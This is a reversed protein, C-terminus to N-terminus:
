SVTIDYLCAASEIGSAAGTPTFRGLGMRLSYFIRTQDRGPIRDTEIRVRRRWGVTYARRNFCLVQGKTNSGGTTSLKGDAETKGMAISSIFPHGQLTSGVEGTFVFANPGYKDLTRFDDLAAVKNATWPDAIYVLDRPDTPSGWDMLYTSDIMLPKLAHLMDLTVAGSADTKNNTNDVIAAHRLGDFALYHKTDAPDADDLNINGSASNTTDGNLVASDSYHALSAQAQARLYPIFPIISDEELEGSWIQHIGFKAASVSVRNSGTKSTTYESSSSSTNEALLLMEPIDAEVPLYATPQTMEFTSLLSFIRSAPRAGAWMDGVYQAGILQLGYGTEATDMARMANRYATTQEWAGRAANRRDSVPYESVPIRPFLDDIARQDIARVQEPTMYVANSIDRFANSLEESPGGYVGASSVKRQGRLSEQLDYLFEIDAGTLNWRSFKSGNAKREGGFRMKREFEPTALVGEVIAKIREESVSEGLAQLRQSIDKLLEESM